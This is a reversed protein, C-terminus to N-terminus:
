LLCTSRHLWEEPQAWVCLIAKTKLLPPAPGRPPGLGGWPAGIEREDLRERLDTAESLDAGGGRALFSGGALSYVALDIANMQEGSDAYGYLAARTQTTVGGDPAGMGAVLM